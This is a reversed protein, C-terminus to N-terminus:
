RTSAARGPQPQLPAGDVACHFARETPRVGCERRLGLAGIVAAAAALGAAVWMAVRYGDRTAGADVAGTLGAVVPVVAIAALSGTRAVANNV